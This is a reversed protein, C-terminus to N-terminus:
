DALVGGSFLRELEGWGTGVKKPGEWKFTGEERGTHQYWM